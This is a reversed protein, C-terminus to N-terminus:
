FVVKGAAILVLAGVVCTLLLIMLAVLFRQPATMGLILRPPRPKQEEIIEEEYSRAATNRLDDLM